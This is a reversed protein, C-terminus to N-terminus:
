EMIYIDLNGNRDSHFAIKAGDPSWAGGGDGLNGSGFTVQIPNAEEVQFIWLNSDIGDERSFLIVRRDLSWDPDAEPFGLGSLAVLNETDLELTYIKNSTFGLDSAFAVAQGDPSIAPSIEEDDFATVPVALNDNGDFPVKWINFRVNEGRDSAFYLYEGDPTWAPEMDDRNGFTVADIASETGGVPFRYLDFTGERDSDFAIWSGDPSFAPHRDDNTDQTLRTQNSGDAAMVWLDFHAGDRDAQFAIETGDPSWAPYMEDQPENTIRTVTRALVTLDVTATVSNEATDFATVDVSIDTGGDRDFTFIRAAYPAAMVTVPKGGTVQFTVRDIAVDDTAEAEVLFSLGSVDAGDEPSAIVLV